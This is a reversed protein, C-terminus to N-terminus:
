SLMRLAALIGLGSYRKRMQKKKCINTPHLHSKSHRACREPKTARGQCNGTRPLALATCTEFQEYTKEYKTEFLFLHGTALWKRINFAYQSSHGACAALASLFTISPLPWSAPFHCDSGTRPILPQLLHWFSMHQACGRLQQAFSLSSKKPQLKCRM